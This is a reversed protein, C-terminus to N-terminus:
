ISLLIIGIQIRQCFSSSLNRKKKQEKLKTNFYNKKELLIDVVTLSVAQYIQEKSADDFSVGFFRSLKNDINQKILSIEDKM